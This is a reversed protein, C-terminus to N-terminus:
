DAEKWTDSAKGHFEGKAKRERPWFTLVFLVVYFVGVISVVIEGPIGPIAATENWTEDPVFITIRFLWALGLLVLLPLYIRKLRRALTEIYSVKYTPHKLDNAIEERWNTLPVGEPDFANALVNEEILRVRARYADYMRYRRVDFILFMSLAVMGILLLYSGRSEFSLALIATVVAIAWDVTLDLRGLFTASQSMEGRYYQQLLSLMESRDYAAKESVEREEEGEPKFEDSDEGMVDM